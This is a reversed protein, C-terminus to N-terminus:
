SEETFCNRCFDLIESETAAVNRVNFYDCDSAYEMIREFFDDRIACDLICMLNREDLMKVQETLSDFYYAINSAIDNYYSDEFVREAGQAIKQEKYKLFAATVKASAQQVAEKISLSNM